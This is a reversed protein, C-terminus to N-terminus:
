TAVTGERGGTARRLRARDSASLRPLSVGAGVWRDRRIGGRASPEYGVAPARADWPYRHHRRRGSPCTARPSRDHSARAPRTQTDATHATPRTGTPLNIITSKGVGSSGLLAVTQSDKLYSVLPELSQRELCSTRYVPVLPAISRVAQVADKVSDCLDTKNLVIVPTAGSEAAAVLYREVRRPNFDGELGSVLFVTDVNATVVQRKTPDGAAKRCFSTRRPLIACITAQRDDGVRVAVWDGVAPLAEPGAAQHRLKGATSAM